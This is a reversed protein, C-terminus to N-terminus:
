SLVGDSEPKELFCEFFSRTGGYRQAETTFRHAEGFRLTQLIFIGGSESPVKM